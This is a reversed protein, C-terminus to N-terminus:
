YTNTEDIGDGIITDWLKIESNREEDKSAEQFEFAIQKKKDELPKLLNEAVFQSIGRREIYLHLDRILLEPLTLTIPIHKTMHHKKM